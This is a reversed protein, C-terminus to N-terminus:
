EAIWLIRESVSVVREPIRALDTMSGSQHKRQVECRHSMDLAPVVRRRECLGIFKDCQRVLFASFYPPCYPHQMFTAHQGQGANGEVRDLLDCRYEGCQPWRACCELDNDNDYKAL